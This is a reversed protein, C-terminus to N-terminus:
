QNRDNNNTGTTTGTNTNGTNNKQFDRDTSNMNNTNFEENINNNDMRAAGENRNPDQPKLVGDITYVVGNTAQEDSQTIRATNGSGDKLVINEGEATATLEEGQMTSLTYSGNGNQIGNRLEEMTIEDEIVLYHASAMMSNVDQENNMQDREEQSLGEYADNSPAFITYPGENQRFDDNIQARNMGQSFTSLEENGEIRSSVSNQEWEMRERNMRDQEEQLERDRELEVENESQRNNDQCSTFAVLGLSLCLIIMISRRFNM